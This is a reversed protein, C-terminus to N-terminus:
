AEFVARGGLITMEVRVGGLDGARPDRSLVVLDALLGPRLSGVEDEAFGAFAAGATYAHIAKEVGLRQSPEPAEVASRIGYLPGLPMDDSGFALPLGTEHYVAFRNLRRAREWGLRREYMGGKHGWEGTFNPQVSAVVGMAAARSVDHDEAMELHEIRARDAPTVGALEFADLVRKAARDGIAHVAVQLGKERARKVLAELRGEGHILQGIGAADQYPFSIAASRSGLSGDAFLKLGLLRVWADGLGRRAGLEVAHELHEEYVFCSARVGLAGQDRAAQLAAFDEGGCMVHSSTVGLEHARRSAAAVAKVLTQLTPATLKVLPDYDAEAVFPGKSAVGAARLAATTVLGGHRDVRALLCRRGGAAADLEEQAPLVPDRWRTEDWSHGVIWGEAPTMRARETVMALLEGKDEVRSLDLRMLRLGYSVLHNHADVFGPVLARGRLDVVRTAPGRMARAEAGLAAIRDGVVALADSEPRAPDQTLVPGDLFLLDAHVGRGGPGGRM